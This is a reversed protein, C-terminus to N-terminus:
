VFLPPNRQPEFRARQAAPYGPPTASAESLVAIEAEDLHWRSAALTERLQREDRAGLLVSAVGQRGLLWNIAVQAPSVGARERAIGELADVVRRGRADDVAETRHLRNLRTGAIDGDRFKGTLYGGALGGWVLAGAGLAVGAPLIEVEADRNVLSYQIQHSVIPALDSRLAVGAATALEWGYLNSGGLYRVKGARVLDDLARLTEDLPVRGDFNHIQYLDIWDTGLRRLSAECAEILHHRSLGVGLPGAGMRGFAKTAVVLDQRRKGIVQGLIEESAGASYIDATDIWTVGAELAIDVLRRAEEVGQSGFAAFAGTGGFTMAGLGLVSLELGSRGVFRTEM